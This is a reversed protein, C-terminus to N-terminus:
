GLYAMDEASLRIDAAKMNEELHALSSTGPIPLIWPSKHLLWALNIQAETAEVLDPIELDVITRIGLGKLYALHAGTPHGGRYLDDRVKAFNAPAQPDTVPVVPPPSGCSAAVLLVLPVLRSVRM